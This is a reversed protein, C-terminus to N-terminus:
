QANKMRQKALEDSRFASNTEILNMIDYVQKLWQQASNQSIVYRGFPKYTKIWEQYSPNKKYPKTFFFPYVPALFLFIEGKTNKYLWTQISDRAIVPSWLVHNYLDNFTIKEHLMTKKYRMENFLFGIDPVSQEDVIKEQYLSKKLFYAFDYLKEYLPGYALCQTSEDETFFVTVWSDYYLCEAECDQVVFKM